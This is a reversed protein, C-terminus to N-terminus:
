LSQMTPSIPIGFGLDNWYSSAVDHICFSICFNEGVNDAAEM